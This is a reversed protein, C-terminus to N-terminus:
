FVFGQVYSVSNNAGDARVTVRTQVPQGNKPCPAKTPDCHQTSSQVAASSTVKLETALLCDAQTLGLDKDRCMRQIIFKVKNGAADPLGGNAYQFNMGSWANSHLNISSDLSAFYGPTVSLSTMNAPYTPDKDIDLGVAAGDRIAALTAMSAEVGADASILTSQKFSLNGAILASTDVSRILAVAALSMALLAILTFFLVVGRQRRGCTAGHAPQLPLSRPTCTVGGPNDAQFIQQSQM